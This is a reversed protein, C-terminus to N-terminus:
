MSLCPVPGSYQIVSQMRRRRRCTPRQVQCSFCHQRSSDPFMEAKIFLHVCKSSGCYVCWGVTYKKAWKQGTAKKRWIIASEFDRQLFGVKLVINTPVFTHESFTHFHTFFFISKQFAPNDKIRFRVFIPSVLSFLSGTM